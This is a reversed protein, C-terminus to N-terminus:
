SERSRSRATDQRRRSSRTTATADLSRHGDEAADVEFTDGDIEGRELAVMFRARGKGVGYVRMLFQVAEEAPMSNLDPDELESARNGSPDHAAPRPPKVMGM